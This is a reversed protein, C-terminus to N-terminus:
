ESVLGANQRGDANSFQTSLEEPSLASLILQESDMVLVSRTKKGGTADILAGRDRADQVIRRVPASDPSVIAIMRERNVYNSYGIRLFEQNM